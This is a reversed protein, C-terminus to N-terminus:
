RENMRNSSLATNVHKLDIYSKGDHFRHSANLLGKSNWKRNWAPFSTYFPTTTDATYM